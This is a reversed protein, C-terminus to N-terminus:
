GYCSLSKILQPLMWGSYDRRIGGNALQHANKRLGDFGSELESAHLNKLQNSDQEIDYVRLLNQEISGQWEALRNKNPYLNNENVETPLSFCNCFAQYIMWSGRLKGELTHGAIHPTALLCKKVLHSSVNPENEFVDLIVKSADGSDLYEILDDNNIVAGRSANILLQRSTLQNLEKKSFLYKTKHEGHDTLPVHLSIVDCELVQNFSYFRRTDGVKVLPPDCLRYNIGLNTLFNALASGVNGAGVIGITLETLQRNYRECWYAVASLVYQAVAAANCGAANAWQIVQQELWNVDLHDIGITATGVFKVPSNELLRRDVKTISRCLLADAELLHRKSIDRGNVKKLEAIGEFLSDVGPMNEDVVVQFKSRVCVDKLM